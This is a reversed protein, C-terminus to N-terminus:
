HVGTGSGCGAILPSFKFGNFIDDLFSFVRIFSKMM